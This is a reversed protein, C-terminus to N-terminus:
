NTGAPAPSKKVDKTEKPKNSEEAAAAIGIERILDNTDLRNIDIGTQGNQAGNVLVFKPNRKLLEQVLTLRLLAEGGPGSLAEIQKSLGEVEANGVALIQEAKNVSAKYYSDGRLQSQREFGEAEQIERNVNQQAANLEADKQAVIAKIKKEEQQRRQDLEQTRDIQEQYSRDFTGDALRREFRHDNYIVDDIIIGEPELRAAISTKVQEVAAQRKDPSFFGSTKLTNMRTRIDARAVTRVLERIKAEEVGVTQVIDRVKEPNLHYQVTIALGVENGDLTRTEVYDEPSEKATTNPSTESNRHEKSLTDSDQSEEGRAGWSISKVSTDVRYLVDWPFFFEMEGPELVKERVGGGLFRPLSTFVVGYESSEMKQFGSDCGTLLFISVSSLIFLFRKQAKM